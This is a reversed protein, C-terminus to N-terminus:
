IKRKQTRSIYELLNEPYSEVSLTHLRRPGTIITKAKFATSEAEGDIIRKLTYYVTTVLIPVGNEKNDLQKVIANRISPSSIIKGEIM